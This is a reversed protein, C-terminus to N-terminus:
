CSCSWATKSRHEDNFDMQFIIGLHHWFLSEDSGLETKEHLDVGHAVIIGDGSLAENVMEDYNFQWRDAFGRLWKESDREDADIDPHRWDHKLSSITGPFLFLWFRQGPQVNTKLFPDVIGHPRFSRGEEEDWETKGVARVKDLMRVEQGPKLKMEAVAPMVAVHIADRQAPETLITGITKITEMM